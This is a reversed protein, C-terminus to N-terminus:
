QDKISKSSALRERLTVRLRDLRAKRQDPTEAALKDSERAYKRQLRAMRQEETEAERQSQRKDKVKKVTKGKRSSNRISLSCKGM